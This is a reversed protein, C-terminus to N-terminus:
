ERFARTHVPPAPWHDFRLSRTHPHQDDHPVALRRLPQDHPGVPHEVAGARFELGLEQGVHPGVDGLVDGDDSRRAAVLGHRGGRLEPGVSEGDGEVGVSWRRVRVPQADAGDGVGARAHLHGVGQEVEDPVRRKDAEVPDPLAEVAV